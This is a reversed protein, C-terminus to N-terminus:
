LWENLLVAPWAILIVRFQAVGIILNPTVIWNDENLNADGKTIYSEKGDDMAIVQSIRHIVIRNNQIFVIIEGPELKENKYAKYVIADGKNVTGQMSESGVAIMSYTFQCSVLYVLVALFAGSILNIKINKKKDRKAEKQIRKLINELTVYMLYPLISKVVTEIFINIDPVVPLFYIYLDMILRYCLTSFYGYNKSIYNLLFHKLTTPILFTLIFHVVEYKIAFNCRKGFIIFDILVYSVVILTQMLYYKFNKKSYQLNSLFYYRTVEMLLVIVFVSLINSTSLYSKYFANLNLSFGTFFGSLYLIGQTLLCEGVIIYYHTNIRSKIPTKFRCLLFSVGGFLVLAVIVWFMNSTRLVFVNFFLLISLLLELLFQINIKFM